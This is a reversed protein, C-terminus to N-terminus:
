FSFGLDFYFALLENSKALQVSLAFANVPKIYVGGGFSNHWVRSKDDKVWVRGVDNFATLGITFPFVITRINYLDYRVEVSNYLSSRGYFRDRRYGRLSKKGGIKNSLLYHFDGFNHAGGFRIGFTLDRPAKVTKYADFEGNINAFNAFDADLRNLGYASTNFRIGKKTIVPDDRTDLKYKATFGFYNQTGIPDELEEWPQTSIYGGSTFRDEDVHTQRYVPGLKFTSNNNISNWRLLGEVLFDSYNFRYYRHRENPDYESTNGFGYFNSNRPSQLDAFIELDTKGLADTIDLRYKVKFAGTLFSIGGIFQQRTAFPEKRFGYTTRIFGGGLLVGDDPTYGAYLLPFTVNYKYSERNYKNVESSKSTKKILNNNSEFIIQEKQDYVVVKKGKLKLSDKIIDNGNGAIIRVRIKAKDEGKIVFQDNGDFGYIRIEKTQNSHFIRHYVTQKINGKKSIKKVTIETQKNRLHNIEFLETKDSGLVTVNKALAKYHRKAIDVLLKRRTKLTQIIKEGHLAYITDPFSRIASEIISDTLHKQIFQAEKIWDKKDAQVLFFRDFYRANFNFGEAWRIDESFGEFKPLIWRRSALKPLIGQNVFFVQDRDRPIPRYVKGHEGKFTAWRWQDDHRDWDGMLMDFLRSRVTFKYDIKSDNDERLKDIVKITSVIKKANGFSEITGDNKSPREEYLFLKGAVLKQYIGFNPDDPVYVVKPNTHYIGIADAMPPVVVAAYPHSASTQDQVVDRAITKRLEEPIAGDTNKDISRLAYQNGNKDELRLSLTAMGGGRKIIKLGGKEKSIDFVPVKIPASWEARYNEGLWNKKENSASGYKNSAAITVSDPLVLETITKQTRKLPTICSNSYFVTDLGIFSMQVNGSPYYELKAYGNESIGYDLKNPRLYTTKCGSGSVVYNISDQKLYQLSHEHGAAYILGPHKKFIQEFANRMKRNTPHGIDQPSVGLQRSIPYLSGIVPLPFLHDKWSFKGGHNGYTYIPHHAAVIIQKDYNRSVIDNLALYVDENSQHECSISKKNEGSFLLWQTDITILVIDDTLHIEEPGPCGDFPSFTSDGMLKDVYIRENQVIDHGNKRGRAWDHNGPIMFVKGEYGKLPKLQLDLEKRESEYTKSNTDSLGLPYINDGLFIVSSNLSENKLEDHLQKIVSDNKSVAGADGILYITYYPNEQSLLTFSFLLLISFNFFQRM